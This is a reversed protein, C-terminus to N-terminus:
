LQVGKHLLFGPLSIQGAAVTAAAAVKNSVLADMTNQDSGVYEIETFGELRLLEEAVYHPAFCIAPLKQFRLRTIEPSPEAGAPEPGLLSAAGLASSAALFTRRMTDM